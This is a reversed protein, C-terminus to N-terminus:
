SLVLLAPIRGAYKNTPCVCHVYFRHSIDPNENRARIPVIPAVSIRTPKAPAANASARDNSSRTSRLTVILPVFTPPRDAPCSSAAMSRTSSLKRAAGTRIAVDVPPNEAGPAANPRVMSRGRRRLETMTAPRSVAM